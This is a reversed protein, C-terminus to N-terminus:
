GYWYDISVEEDHMDKDEDEHFYREWFLPDDKLNMHLHRLLSNFSQQGYRDHGTQCREILRDIEQISALSMFDVVDYVRMLARFFHFDESHSHWHFALSCFNHDIFCPIHSDLARKKISGCKM